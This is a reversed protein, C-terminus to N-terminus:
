TYFARVQHAAGAPTGGVLRAQPSAKLAHLERAVPTCSWEGADYGPQGPRAQGQPHPTPQTAHPTHNCSACHPPPPPTQLELSCACRAPSTAVAPPGQTPPALSPPLQLRSLPQWNHGRAADTHGRLFAWDPPRTMLNKDLALSPAPKAPTSGPSYLRQPLVLRCALGAEGALALPGQGPRM